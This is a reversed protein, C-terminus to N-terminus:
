ASMRAFCLEVMGVSWVRCVHLIGSYMGNGTFSLKM